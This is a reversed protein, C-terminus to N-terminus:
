GKQDFRWAWMLNYNIYGAIKNSKSSNLIVRGQAFRRINWCIVETNKGGVKVSATHSRRKAATNRAVCTYNGSDSVSRAQIILSGDDTILRNSSPTLPQRDKM